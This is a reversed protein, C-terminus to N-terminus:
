PRKHSPMADMVRSCGNSACCLSDMHRCSFDPRIRLSAKKKTIFFSPQALQQSSNKPRELKLIFTGRKKSSTRPSFFVDVFINCIEPITQLRNKNECSFINESLRPKKGFFIGTLFQIMKEGLPHFNWLFIRTAVVWLNMYFSRSSDQMVEQYEMFGELSLAQRQLQPSESAKTATTAHCSLEISKSPHGPDISNGPERSQYTTPLM